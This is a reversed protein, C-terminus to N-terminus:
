IDPIYDETFWQKTATTAITPLNTATTPLTTPLPLYQTNQAPSNRFKQERLFLLEIRNIRQRIRGSNHLLKNLEKM